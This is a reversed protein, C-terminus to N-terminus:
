PADMGACEHERKTSSSWPSNYVRIGDNMAEHLPACNLTLTAAPTIYLQAQECLRPHCLMSSEIRAYEHLRALIIM